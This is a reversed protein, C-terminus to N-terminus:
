TARVLSGTVTTSAQQEIGLALPGFIFRHFPAVSYWYLRGFLGRPRFVARQVFLVGSPEPTILWELWADGPLRMEARLRLLRAPELAEVRWFDVVDGVRLEAPHRRGRRMGVGGVLRDLWGRVAWLWPGVLWGRGGGLACVEAFLAEPTANTHVVQRDTLITAGAWDPDTPIPDAPTRGYLEADTWRTSVDLDGVRRLALEIAERTGIPQHTVVEDISHDSVVVENVLSDIM